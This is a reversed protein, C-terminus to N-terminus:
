RRCPSPSWDGAGFLGDAALSALRTLGFYFSDDCVCNDQGRSSPCTFGKRCLIQQRLSEFGSIEIFADKVIETPTSDHMLPVLWLGVVDRSTKALPSLLLAYSNTIQANRIRGMSRQAALRAETDIDESFMPEGHTITWLQELFSSLLQRGKEGEAVEEQMLSLQVALANELEERVNSFDPSLRHLVAGLDEEEDVVALVTDLFEQSYTKYHARPSIIFDVPQFSSLVAERLIAKDEGDGRLLRVLREVRPYYQVFGKFLQEGDAIAAVKLMAADESCAEWMAGPATADATTEISIATAFLEEVAGIGRALHALQLSRKRFRDAIEAAKSDSLKTDFLWAILAYSGALHTRAVEKTPTRDLLGLHAMEHCFAFWDYFLHRDDRSYRHNRGRYGLPRLQERPVPLYVMHALPQTRMYSLSGQVALAPWRNQFDDSRVPQHLPHEVTCQFCFAAYHYEDM